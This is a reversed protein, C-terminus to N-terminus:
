AVGERTVLTVATGARAAQALADTALATTLSEDPDITPAHGDRVHRVFREAQAVYPDGGAIVTVQEPVGPRRLKLVGPGACTWPSELCLVGLTGHVRFAHEEAADISTFVRAAVGDDWQLVGALTRDVGGRFSAVAVASLPARGRLWIAADVPYCGVDLLAGGGLAASAVISDPDDLEFTFAGDISVVDGITGALVASRLADWQPHARYMFAEVVRVGRSRAARGIEATDRACTTMPKEVLVHLGAAVARLTWEAHLANPLSIYVADVLDPDLLAAYSDLATTAGLAAAKAAARELTRSAVASVTSDAAGALAPGVRDVISAVGLIGWRLPRAESSGTEPTTAVPM